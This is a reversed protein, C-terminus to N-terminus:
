SAFHVLLISLLFNNFSLPPTLFNKAKSTLGRNCNKEASVGWQFIQVPIPPFILHCAFFM